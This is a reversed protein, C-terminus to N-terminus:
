DCETDSRNDKIESSPDRLLKLIAKAIFYYWIIDLVLIALLLGVFGPYLPFWGLIDALDTWISGLIWYPYVVLRLVTWSAAFSLFLVDSIREVGAYKFLKANELFVDSCDHVWTVLTGVRFFNTIWSISMLAITVVHHAFMTWFDKRRADYFQSFLLCWYFSLQLMYYLWIDDTVGHEPYLYWCNKIDHFYSKNWLMVTGYVYMSTYFLSRFGCESFKELKTKRTSTRRRKLWREVQRESIDVKKSLEVLVQDDLKKFNEVEKFAKELAIDAETSPGASSESYAQRKEPIGLGIGIPPMVKKEVFVKVAFLVPAMTISYALDIIQGFRTGTLSSEEEFTSWTVNQPLWLDMDWLWDNVYADDLMMTDNLSRTPHFRPHAPSGVADHFSIGFICVSFFHKNM